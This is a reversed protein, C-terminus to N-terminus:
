IYRAARVASVAYGVLIGIVGCFLVASFGWAFYKALLAPDPSLMSDLNLLHQYNSTSVLTYNCPEGTNALRIVNSALFGVRPQVIVCLNDM